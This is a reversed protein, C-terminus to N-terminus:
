TIFDDDPNKGLSMLSLRLRHTEEKLKRIEENLADVAGQNSERLTQKRRELEKIVEQAEALAAELAAVKSLHGKRWDTFKEFMKVLLPSGIATALISFLMEQTTM